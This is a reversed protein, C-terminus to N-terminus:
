SRSLNIAKSKFFCKLNRGSKVKPTKYFVKWMVEIGKDIMLAYNEITNVDHYWRVNNGFIYKECKVILNLM